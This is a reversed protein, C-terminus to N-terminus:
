GRIWERHKRYHHADDGRATAETIANWRDAPVAEIVRIRHDFADQAWKRAEDLSMRSYKQQIRANVADEDNSGQFEDFADAAPVPVGALKALRTTTSEIMRALHTYVDRAVWAPSEPDHLPGDPQADLAAVLAAWEARDEAFMAAIAAADM